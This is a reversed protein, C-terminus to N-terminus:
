RGLRLSFFYALFGLLLLLIGVGAVNSLGLVPAVDVSVPNVSGPAYLVLLAFAEAVAGVAFMVIGSIRLISRGRKRQSPRPDDM